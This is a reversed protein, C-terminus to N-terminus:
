NNAEVKFEASHGVIHGEVIEEETELSSRQKFLKTHGINKLTQSVQELDEDVNDQLQPTALIPPSGARTVSPRKPSIFPLEDESSSDENYNVKPIDRAPKSWNWM